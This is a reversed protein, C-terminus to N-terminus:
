DVVTSCMVWFVACTEWARQNCLMFRLVGILMHQVCLRFCMVGMWARQVCLMFRLVDILM